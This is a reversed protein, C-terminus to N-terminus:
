RRAFAETKATRRFRDDGVAAGSFGDVFRARDYDDYFISLNIGHTDYLWQFWNWIIEM